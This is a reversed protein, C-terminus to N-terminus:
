EKIERYSKFWAITEKLAEEHSTIEVGFAAEFKSHDVIYPEEWTYMMEKVERIMPNFLGLM